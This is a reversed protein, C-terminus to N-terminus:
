VHPSQPGPFPLLKDSTGYYTLPQVIKLVVTDKLLDNNNSRCHTAEAKWSFFTNETIYIIRYILPEQDKEKTPLPPNMSGKFYSHFIKVTEGYFYEFAHVCVCMCVYLYLKLTNM